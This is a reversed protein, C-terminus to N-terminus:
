EPSLEKQAQVLLQQLELLITNKEEPKLTNRDIRQDLRKRLKNHDKDKWIRCALGTKNIIPHNIISHNTNKM